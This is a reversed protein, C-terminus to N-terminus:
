LDDDDGNGYKGKSFLRILIRMIWFTLPVGIALIFLGGMDSWLQSITNGIDSITSSPINFM